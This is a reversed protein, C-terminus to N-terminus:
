QGGSSAIRDALQRFEFDLQMDFTESAERRILAVIRDREAEVAGALQEAPVWEGRRTPQHCIACVPLRDTGIFTRVPGHLKCAEGTWREILTM